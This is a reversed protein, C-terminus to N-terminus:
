GAGFTQLLDSNLVLSGKTSFCTCFTIQLIHLLSMNAPGFKLVLPHLYATLAFQEAFQLGRESTISKNLINGFFLQHLNAM